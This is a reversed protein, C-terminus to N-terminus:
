EFRRLLVNEFIYRISDTRSAASDPPTVDEDQESIASERKTCDFYAAFDTDCCSCGCATAADHRAIIEELPDGM